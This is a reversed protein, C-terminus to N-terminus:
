RAPPQPLSVERLRRDLIRVPYRKKLDEFYGTLARETEVRRDSEVRATLANPDPPRVEKSRLRLAGSGLIIWDSLQGVPLGDDGSAGFVLTDVRGGTGIGPIRQGPMVDSARQLGGWAVAVSDFSWGAGALSDLEARKADLARQGAGARYAALVRGRAQEWTPPGPPSISDVWTVASGLGGLERRMPLVQGAKLRELRQYYPHLEAPYEDREGTTHAYSLTRLGLKRAAAWGQRADKLVLLLSDARQRAMSDAKATAADGSVDVYIQALPQAVLPAYDTVKILHYGVASRVPQPSLDGARMAFAAREIEPLMTGRGFMGLDGGNDRTAPDDTVQKAMESFSDGARLRELLSDARARAERDAAPTNDRPSILIHSARVLEPASYRDLHERHFREVEARTLSVTLPDQPAVFARTYHIIDGGAYRQPSAEFSERAASEEESTRRETRRQVLRPRAQEFTPLYGPVAAYVDFAIWGRAGRALGPGLAGRRASLSDGLVRGAAGTDVPAGAVVPGVERLRLRQELAADRRRRAWTERLQDALDRSLENRREAIWRAQVEGRVEDLSKAVVGGERSSFSSYDALHARYYRDLDAATPLGPAVAGTDAVAYRVRFATSTLSDRMGDYLAHLERDEATQRSAARLRARIERAVEALPATHAPQVQDVRVVLWGKQAPVPATLVTGPRAAFVAAETAADGRWYGPFNGPVVQNPRVGGLSKSAEELTQGSKVAALMSDARAKMRTTWAEASGPVAAESDSLAPQDVFAVSLSARQPRHYEPAHSQYYALIDSERPEPYSGDFEANTLILYEISARTLARRASARVEAENPGKEKQLRQMLDRAALTRRVNQLATAFAGPNQLRVQDYRARDFRGNVQFFADKQLQAEAEQESGVLGRRQAELVLLERRILSELLQRRAIPVIEPPLDSGTRGKYEVLAQQARQDLEAQAIRLPGVTAVAPPAAPAPPTPAAGPAGPRVQAGAVWAMMAATAMMASMTRWKFESM